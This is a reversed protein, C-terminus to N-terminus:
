FGGKKKLYWLIIGIYEQYKGGNNKDDLYKKYLKRLESSTRTGADINLHKKITDLAAKRNSVLYGKEYNLNLINNLDDDFNSNSSVIKGTSKYSITQIHTTDQPDIGLIKNGKKTDCTQERESSGENGKCVVLLNQYSLQLAINNNRSVYHEIKTKSPDDELKTMCYACIYGQEELLAKRLKAKVDSPLDDFSSDPSQQYTVLSNPPINKNIKIM